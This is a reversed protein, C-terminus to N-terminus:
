FPKFETAPKLSGRLNGVTESVEFEGFENERTLAKLYNEILDSLSRGRSKAYLKSKEIVDKDIVLTLKADM